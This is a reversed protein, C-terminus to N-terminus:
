ISVYVDYFMMFADSLSKRGTPDAERQHRLLGHVSEAGCEESNGGSGCDGKGHLRGLDVTGAGGKWIRDVGFPRFGVRRLGSQLHIILRDARTAADLLDVGLRDVKTGGVHRQVGRVEFLPDEA